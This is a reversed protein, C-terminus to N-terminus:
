KRGFLEKIGYKSLVAAVFLVIALIIAAVLDRGIKSKSSKEVKENQSLSDNSESHVSEQLEKRIEVSSSDRTDIDTGSELNMEGEIEALLPPLHTKEDLPKDTDYIRVSYRHDIKLSDMITQILGSYGNLTELGTKNKDIVDKEIHVSERNIKKKTSCGCFVFFCLLFCCVVNKGM